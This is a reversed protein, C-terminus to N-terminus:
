QCPRDKQRDTQGNTQGGRQEFLWLKGLKQKVDFHSGNRADKLCLLALFIMILQSLLWSFPKLITTNKPLWPSEIRRKTQRNTRGGRQEFLWLKRLIQKVDFHSGNRADKLWLLCASLIMILWSLLWTFPKLNVKIKQYIPYSQEDKQRDPERDAKGDVPRNLSVSKTQRKANVWFSKIDLFSSQFRKM